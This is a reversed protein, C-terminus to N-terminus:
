KWLKAKELIGCTSIMFYTSKESHSRENLLTHKFNKRPKDMAQSGKLVHILGM